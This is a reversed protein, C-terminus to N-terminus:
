KMEEKFIDEFSKGSVKLLYIIEDLKLNKKELLKKGLNDSNKGLEKAMDKITKNEEYLLHKLIM